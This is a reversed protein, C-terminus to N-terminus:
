ETVVKYIGDAGSDKGGVMFILDLETSQRIHTSLQGIRGWMDRSCKITFEGSTHKNYAELAISEKTKLSQIFREYDVFRGFQKYNQRYYNKIDTPKALYKLPLGIEVYEKGDDSRTFEAIASWKDPNTSVHLVGIRGLKGIYGEIPM